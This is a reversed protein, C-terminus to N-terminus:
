KCGCTAGADNVGGPLGSKELCNNIKKVYNQTENNAPIGDAKNVAYPGANYAALSTAVNSCYSLLLNIYATGMQQNSMGPQLLGRQGLENIAPPTLQMLGTAGKPSVANPNGSSETQIICNILPQSACKNIPTPLKSHPGVPPLNCTKALGTPDIFSTPENGVYDYFNHGGLFTVPDESLFRGTSPDLYRARNYFLNTETDFERGAYRFFNTLSASSATQTGFSDYTYTQALAGSTNGLSTISNLGDQEYHEVTSGREMALSEDINEGQTYRDVEGGSANVTEILNDNDYAFISTTTPSIKEIRRGFPDYKFTTTGGNTGPVVAQTLRNEFDWTYSKGSPDALTNGNADYTYSGLSNQTLENSSNYSYTPV